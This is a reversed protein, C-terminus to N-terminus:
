ITRVMIYSFFKHTPMFLLWESVWNNISYYDHKIFFCICNFLYCQREKAKFELLSLSPWIQVAVKIVILLQLHSLNSDFCYSFWLRSNYLLQWCHDQTQYILLITFGYITYSDCTLLHKQKKIWLNVMSQVKICLKWKNGANEAVFYYTNFFFTQLYIFYTTSKGSSLNHKGNVWWSKCITTLQLLTFL